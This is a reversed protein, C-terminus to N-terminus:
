ASVEEVFNKWDDININLYRGLSEGHAKRIFDYNYFSTNGWTERIARRREFNNPASAVAITVLISENSRCITLPEFLAASEEFNLYDSLNKSSSPCWGIDISDDDRPTLYYFLIVTQVLIIILFKHRARAM